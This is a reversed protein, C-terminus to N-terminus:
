FQIKLCLEAYFHLWLCFMSRENWLMIILTSHTYFEHWLTWTM